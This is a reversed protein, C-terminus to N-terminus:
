KEESPRRQDEEKGNRNTVQYIFSNIKSSSLSCSGYWIAQHDIYHVKVPEVAVNYQSLVSPKNKELGFAVRTFRFACIEPRHSNYCQNSPIQNTQKVKELSIILVQKRDGVCKEDQNAIVLM